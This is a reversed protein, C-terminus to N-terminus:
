FKKRIFYYIILWYIIFYFIFLIWGANTHYVHIAFKPDYLLATVYVFYVRLINLGYIGFLGLILVAVSRKKNIEKHDLTFILLNLFIFLTLGEIGSCPNDIYAGFGDASLLPGHIGGEYRVFVENFSFKLLFAVITTTLFSFFEWYRQFFLSLQFFFYSLVLSILLSKYFKKIIKTGFLAFGLSLFIVLPLLYRLFVLFYFNINNLLIEPQTIVKEKLKIFTLLSFLHIILAILFVKPNFEIKKLVFLRRREMVFFIVVFLFALVVSTRGFVNLKVLELSKPFFEKEIFLIVVFILSLLFLNRFGPQTLKKWVINIVKM